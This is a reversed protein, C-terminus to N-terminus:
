NDEGPPFLFPLKGSTRYRSYLEIVQRKDNYLNELLEDLNNFKKENRIKKIYLITYNGGDHIGSLDADEEVINTENRLDHNQMSPRTGIYTMSPMYKGGHYFLTFYVGDGPLVQSNIEFNVTPYGNKRGIGDGKIKKSTIFYPRGLMDAAEEMRGGRIKVRIASSSVAIFGRKIKKVVNVTFSKGSAMNRLMHINGLNQRGFRFDQGVYLHLNKIREKLLDIFVEAEMGAIRNFDLSLINQIGIGSLAKKKYDEPFLYGKFRDPNLYLSTAKEFTVAVTPSERADKQMMGVIRQHGKHLGDFNGITVFAEDFLPLESPDSYLAASM